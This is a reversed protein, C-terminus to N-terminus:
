VAPHRVHWESAQEYAHAIRCLLPESLRTGMFQMAYPAGTDTAGCPVTITPTGAWNAPFTFRYRTLDSGPASDGIGGYRLDEAAPSPPGGSPCVVADVTSLAERFRSNFDARLTSAAAYEEDTVTSGLELYERFFDGYEEARSPFTEAHARVTEYSGIARFAAVQPEMFEPMSVSVIRAGLGELVGVATEIAGVVGSDVGDTAYATDFGVSLGRVDGSLGELIPPTPDSLTTPDNADPGAIVEFMAAADAVYRTMPGVHDLSEALAIVGHRSVRGYTPKLGVIGNAASPFRISGGTDTGLSGFCLGAATAVASGSSSGAPSLTADWPNVPIQFDRHYGLMAGETLNLKGLLVAGAGTLRTVVTADYSPVFDALFAHGGTTPASETYFLDKVAVPIGHLPGKYNGAEIEREATRAASLARDSLVTLYSNLRGDLEGIRALMTETLELPSLDRVEILKAIEVLSAYHLPGGPVAVSDSDTASPSCAAHVSALTGSGLLALLERRSLMFESATRRASHDVLKSFAM